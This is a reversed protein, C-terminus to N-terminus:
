RAASATSRSRDDDLEQVRDAIRDRLRAHDERDALVLQQDGVGARAQMRHEAQRREARQEHVDHARLLRMCLAIMSADIRGIANMALMEAHDHQHQDGIVEAVLGPLAEQVAGGAHHQHQDRESIKKASSAPSFQASDARWPLAAGGFARRM